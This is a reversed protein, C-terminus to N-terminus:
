ALIRGVEFFPELLLGFLLGFDVGEEGLPLLAGFVVRIMLVVLVQDLLDEIQRAGQEQELEHECLRVLRGREVWVMLHM